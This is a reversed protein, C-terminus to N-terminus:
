HQRKSELRLSGSRGDRLSQGVVFEQLWPDVVLDALLKGKIAVSLSRDSVM